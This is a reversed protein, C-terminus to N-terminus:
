CNKVTLLRILYSVSLENTEDRFQLGPGYRGSFDDCLKELNNTRVVSHKM